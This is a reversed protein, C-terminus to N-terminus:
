EMVKCEVIEMDFMNAIGEIRLEEGVRINHTYITIRGKNSYPEQIYCIEKIVTEELKVKAKYIKDNNLYYTETKAISSGELQVIYYTVYGEEDVNASDDAFFVQIIPVEHGSSIKISKKIAWMASNVAISKGELDIYNLIGTGLQLNEFATSGDNIVGLFSFTVDWIVDIVDEDPMETEDSYENYYSENDTLYSPYSYKDTTEQICSIVSMLLIMTIIIRVQMM